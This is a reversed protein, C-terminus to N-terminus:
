GNRRANLRSTIEALRETVVQRQPSGAPLKEQAQRLQRQAAELDGRLVDYEARARHVGVINRAVGEAEALRLWLHEQGPLMRTLRQLLEAAAAGNNDALEVEALTHMIPYNEPNRALAKELLARADQIRNQDLLVEALSVQFTIRGPHKQLLEELLAAAKEPQNNSQHAVALGYKVAENRQHADDELYSAFTAVATEPSTAYRVQLRSRVLHYEQSDQVPREPYQTARNRTDAVRSQTLPHTSLYEPPQNGQLRNQRMMIEFMEPMGDPDMGSRALIELGVRDAEQEHARSYALMNQVALAQTGAIAAIGLDSQTVASLVIGAIMGAITLPASTEQQELRRAFHRQSLHALEHALVSAFQQETSAHLFLGGNVGVIGGPVAFANIAPSDILALTLEREQLPASPVLQYTIATLYDFVLPDTIQPASRRISVMVQQGIESEQQGSILGGGAGGISPLESDQALAPAGSFLLSLALIGSRVASKPRPSPRANIM